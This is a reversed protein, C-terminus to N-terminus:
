KGMTKHGFPLNNCTVGALVLERATDALQPRYLHPLLDIVDRDDARAGGPNAAATHM